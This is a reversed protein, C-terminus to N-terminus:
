SKELGYLRIHEAGEDDVWHGLVYDDGIQHVTLGVPTEVFGLMRLGNDFLAWRTPVGGFASYASVWLNGESDTMIDAYAPMAEPFPLTNLQRERDAREREHVGALRGRKYRAIDDESVARQPEPWRVSMVLSDNTGYVDIRTTDQTGAYLRDGSVAFVTRRGFPRGSVRVFRSTGTTFLQESGPFTGLNGLQEGTQAYRHATTPGRIVGEPPDGSQIMARAWSRFDRVVLVTGDAFIGQASGPAVGGVIVLKNTRVPTGDRDYVVLRMAGYDYAVVTDPPYLGVWELGIFYGYRSGAGGVSRVLQGSPGYWRLEQSGANAVVITGDALRTSSLARSLAQEPQQAGAGIDLIPEASLRWGNGGPWAPGHNEVITVGSSDRVTPPPAPGPECAILACVGLLLIRHM